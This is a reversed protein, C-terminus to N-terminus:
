RLSGPNMTSSKLKRIKTQMISQPPFLVMLKSLLFEVKERSHKQFSELSRLLFNLSHVFTASVSCDSVACIATVNEPKCRVRFEIM